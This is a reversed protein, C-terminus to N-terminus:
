SYIPEAEIISLYQVVAEDIPIQRALVREQYKQMWLHLYARAHRFEVIFLPALPGSNEIFGTDQFDKEVQERDYVLRIIDAQLHGDQWTLQVYGARHDGDYPMGVSGVNIILTDDLQRILPRHTHGVCLALPAPAIQQRLTEDSTDDYIGDRNHKMSAHVARIERSDPTWISVQFPMDTLSGVHSGIQDLTWKAVRYIEFEPGCQPANPLTHNLVYDEHNGRVVRWGSSRQKEEIIELCELPRPGRNVIDGIVVVEDPQWGDIHTVVTQLAPLNAHIDALAAIKMSPKDEFWNSSSKL